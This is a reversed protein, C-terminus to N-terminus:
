MELQNRSVDAPRQAESRDEPTGITEMEMEELLAKMKTVVNRENVEINELCTETTWGKIQL